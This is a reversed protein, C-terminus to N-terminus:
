LNRVDIVTSREPHQRIKSRFSAGAIIRVAYLQVSYNPGGCVSLVTLATGHGM